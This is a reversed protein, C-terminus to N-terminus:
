RQKASQFIYCWIFIIYPCYMFLNYIPLIVDYLSLIHSMKELTKSTKRIHM